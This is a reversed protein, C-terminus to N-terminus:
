KVVKGYLIYVAIQRDTPKSIGAFILANIAQMMTKQQESPVQLTM